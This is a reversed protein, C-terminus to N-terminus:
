KCTKSWPKLICDQCVQFEEPSIEKYGNVSGFLWLIISPIFFIVVGALARYLLRKTANKIEEDKSAVVAKGLDFMGLAIILLPIAVKFVTLIWGAFQLVESAESCFTGPDFGMLLLDSM